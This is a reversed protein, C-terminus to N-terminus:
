NGKIETLKQVRLFACPQQEGMISKLKSNWGEVASNTRHRYKNINWMEVPVNQNQMLQQVYYELFVTLKENKSVNEVIMLWGEEVKNVLLYPLAACLRSTLRVPESEKYEV